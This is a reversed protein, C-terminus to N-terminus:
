MSKVSTTNMCKYESKNYHWGTGLVSSDNWQSLVPQAWVNTKLSTAIDYHKQYQLMM